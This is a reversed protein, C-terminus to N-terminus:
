VESHAAFFPRPENLYDPFPASSFSQDCRALGASPYENMQGKCLSEKMCVNDGGNAASKGLSRFYKITLICKKMNGEAGLSEGPRGRTFAKVEREIFM